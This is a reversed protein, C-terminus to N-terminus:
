YCRGPMFLFNASSEDGCGDTDIASMEIFDCFRLIRDAMIITISGFYLIISGIQVYMNETRTSNVVAGTKRSQM